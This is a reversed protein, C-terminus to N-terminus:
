GWKKRLFKTIFFVVILASFIFLLIAEGIILINWGDGPLHPKIDDGGGNDDVGNEGVSYLIFTGKNFRYIVPRGNLDQFDVDSLVYPGKWKMDHRLNSKLCDLGCGANPYCGFDARFKELGDVIKDLNYREAEHESKSGYVFSSALLTLFIVSLFKNIVVM